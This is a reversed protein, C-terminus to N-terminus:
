REVHFLTKGSGIMPEALSMDAGRASIKMQAPLRIGRSQEVHFVELKGGSGRKMSSVFGNAQQRQM